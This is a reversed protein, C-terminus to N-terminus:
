LDRGEKRSNRRDLQKGLDLLIDEKKRINQIKEHDTPIIM